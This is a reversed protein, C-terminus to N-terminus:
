LNSPLQKIKKYYHHLCHLCYKTISNYPHDKNKVFLSRSYSRPALEKLYSHFNLILKEFMLENKIDNMVYEVLYTSIYIFSKENNNIIRIKYYDGTNYIKSTSFRIKVKAVKCLIESM